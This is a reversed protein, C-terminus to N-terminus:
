EQICYGLEITNSNKKYCYSYEDCDDDDSCRGTVAAASLLTIFCCIIMLALIFKM